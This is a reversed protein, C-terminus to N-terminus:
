LNEFSTLLKEEGSLDNSSGTVNDTIDIVLEEKPPQDKSLSYTIFSSRDDLDNVAIPQNTVPFQHEPVPIQSEPFNGTPISKFHFIKVGNEFIHGMYRVTDRYEALKGDNNYVILRDWLTGPAPTIESNSNM